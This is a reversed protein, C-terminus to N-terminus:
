LINKSKYSELTDDYICMPFNSHLLSLLAPWASTTLSLIKHGAPCIVLQKLVAM